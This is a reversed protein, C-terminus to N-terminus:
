LSYNEFLAQKQTPKVRDFVTKNKSYFWKAFDKPNSPLWDYIGTHCCKNTVAIANSFNYYEKFTKWSEQVSPLIDMHFGVGDEEAYNLTWCRRGEVDLMKKYTGHAM